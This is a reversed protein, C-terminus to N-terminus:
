RAILALYGYDCMSRALQSTSFRKLGPSAPDLATFGDRDAGVLVYYHGPSFWASVPVVVPTGGRVVAALRNFHATVPPRSSCEGAIVIGSPAAVSLSVGVRPAYRQMDAVSYGRYSAPAPLRAYLQEINGGRRAGLSALAARGCESATKQRIWPVNITVAIAARLDSALLAGALLGLVVERRRM